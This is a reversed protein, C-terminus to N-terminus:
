EETKLNNLYDEVQEDSVCILDYMGSVGSVHLHWRYISNFIYQYGNVSYVYLLKGDVEVPQLTECGIGLYETEFWKLKKAM